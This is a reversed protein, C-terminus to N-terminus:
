RAAIAPQAGELRAGALEQPLEVAVRFARFVLQAAATVLAIEDTRRRDAVALEVDPHALIWLMEVADAVQPADIQGLRDLLAARVGITVHRRHVVVEIRLCGFVPLTRRQDPVEASAVLVGGGLAFPEKASGHAGTRDVVPQDICRLQVAEEVAEVSSRALMVPAVVQFARQPDPRQPRVALHVDGALIAVDPDEIVALLRLQDVLNLHITWKARGRYSGVAHEVQHAFFVQIGDRCAAPMGRLPRRRLDSPYM